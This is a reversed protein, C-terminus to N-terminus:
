TTTGRLFSSPDFQFVGFDHRVKFDLGMDEFSYPDRPRLKEMARAAQKLRHLLENTDGPPRKWSEHACVGCAGPPPGYRCVVELDPKEGVLAETRGQVYSMIAWGTSEVGCAAKRVPSHQSALAHKLPVGFDDLDVRTLGAAIHWTTWRGKDTKWRWWPLEPAIVEGWPDSVYTIPVAARNVRSDCRSYLDCLVPVSVGAWQGVVFVEKPRVGDPLQTGILTDFPDLRMAVAWYKAQEKSGSLVLVKPAPPTWAGYLDAVTFPKKANM